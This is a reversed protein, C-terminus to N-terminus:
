GGFQTYPVTVSTPATGVAYKGVLTLAGYAPVAGVATTIQYVYIDNSQDNVVYLFVDTTNLFAYTMAVPHTGTTAVVGLPALTGPPAGIATQVSYASITNDTGNAVYLLDLQPANQFRVLAMSTPGNGTAVPALATLLGTNADGQYESITNSGQNAVFVYQVPFNAGAVNTTLVDAVAASPATGAAIPNATPPVLSAALTLTGDSAVKYASVDNTVQSAVYEFTNLNLGVGTTDVAAVPTNGAGVTAFPSGVTATPVGTPPVASYASIDSSGANLAFAACDTYDFDIYGPTTGAAISPSSILTLAGGGSGTNTNTDVSFASVTGSVSNAVYLGVPYDNGAPSFALTCGFILSSPHTGTTAIVANPQGAPAVIQTLPALVGTNYDIAFGSIDNGGGNTVYLYGGPQICTVAVNTIPANVIAGSASAVSCAIAIAAPEGAISVGYTTGSDLTGPLTFAGNATIAYAGGGNNQLSLGTYPLGTTPDTPLGTVTGGVTYSNTVCDVAISTVNAAQIAGNGNSVTCTQYPTSPQTLVSVSYAGGRPLATPFAFPVSGTGTVSLNDAGNDQLVLGTGSLGTITGGVTYGVTTCAVTVPTARGAVATGTGNTVVCNQSAPETLVTVQYASGSPLATAFTANGNNAVALNDGGNDQLVLGGGILGSVTVSVLANAKCAVSVSTVNSAAVTGSANTFTCTQSQQGNVQLSTVNYTSGSPIPIAFQFPGDASVTLNDRGNDQLVLSGVGTIGSVSGGITYAPNANSKCSVAINTIDSSGTTGTANAIACDQYPSVPPSLVSISYAAGSPLATAFTFPGNSPIALNDGLNDQLVLGSGLVGVATGGITDTTTTKDACVVSVGTVNASGITGSGNTVVCTQTPSTPESLVTVSYSDGRILATAFTFSGDAAIPLNDGGDNQLILNSGSLGAVTGGVTFDSATVGASTDTGGVGGTCAALSLAGLWLCAARAASGSRIVAVAWGMCM